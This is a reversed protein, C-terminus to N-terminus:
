LDGELVQHYVDNQTAMDVGQEITDLIDQEEYSLEMAIHLGRALVVVTAILTEKSLDLLEDITM